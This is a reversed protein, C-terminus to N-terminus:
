LNLEDFGASKVTRDLEVVCPGAILFFPQGLGVEHGLLKM